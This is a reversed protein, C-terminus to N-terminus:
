SCQFHRNIGFRRWLSGYSPGHASPVDLPVSSEHSGTCEIDRPHKRSRPRSRGDCPVDEFDLSKASSKAAPKFTDKPDRHAASSSTSPVAAFSGNFWKPKWRECKAKCKQFLKEINAPALDNGVACITQYLRNYRELANEGIAKLEFEYREDIGKPLEDIDYRYKQPIEFGFREKWADFAKDNEATKREEPPPAMYSKLDENLHWLISAMYMYDQEANDYHEAAEDLNGDFINFTKVHTLKLIARILPPTAILQLLAEKTPIEQLLYCGIRSKSTIESVETDGQKAIPHEPHKTLTFQDEHRIFPLRPAM